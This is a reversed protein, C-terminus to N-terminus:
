GGGPREGALGQRSVKHLEVGRWAAGRSARSPEGQAAGGLSASGTHAPVSQSVQLGAVIRRLDEAIPGM